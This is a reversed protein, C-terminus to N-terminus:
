QAEHAYILENSDFQALFSEIGSVYPFVAFDRSYETFVIWFVLSPSVALILEFTKLFFSCKRAM